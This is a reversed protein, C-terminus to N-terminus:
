LLFCAISTIPYNLFMYEPEVFKKLVRLIQKCSPMCIIGSQNGVSYLFEIRIDRAPLKVLQDHHVKLLKCNILLSKRLAACDTVQRFIFYELNKKQTYM